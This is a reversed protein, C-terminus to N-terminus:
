ADTMLDVVNRDYQAIKMEMAYFHDPKGGWFAIRRVQVTNDCLIGNYLADDLVCEPQENHKWNPSAWSNEGM